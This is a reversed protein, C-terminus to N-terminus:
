CYAIRSCKVYVAGQARSSLVRKQVVNDFTSRLMCQTTIVELNSEVECRTWLRWCALLSVNM